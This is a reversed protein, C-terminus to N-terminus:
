HQSVFKTSYMRKLWMKNKFPHPVFDGFYTATLVCKLSHLASARAPNLTARHSPLVASRPRPDECRAVLVAGPMQDDVYRESMHEVDEADPGFHQVLRTRDSTERGEQEQRM